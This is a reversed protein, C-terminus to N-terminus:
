RRIFVIKGVPVKGERVIEIRRAGIVTPWNVALKVVQILRTNMKADNGASRISEIVEDRTPVNFYMGTFGDGERTTITVEYRVKSM